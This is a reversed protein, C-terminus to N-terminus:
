KNLIKELEKIDENKAKVLGVTKHRPFQPEAIKSLDLALKAFDRSDSICGLRWALRARTLSYFYKSDNMGLDGNSKKFDETIL